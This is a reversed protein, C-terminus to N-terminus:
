RTPMPSDPSYVTSMLEAIVTDSLLLGKPSTLAIRTLDPPLREMMGNEIQRNLQSQLEEARNFQAAESLLSSLELGEALRFGMMMREALQVQPTAHEVDQITPLGDLDPNNTLYQQLHPVNKWRYNAWHGSAAPGIAFWNENRWYALNHQCRFDPKKDGAHNSEQLAFNSIEYANFGQETLIRRTALFMEAEIKEDIAHFEGANKRATMATGPEFTLAYCSLHTPKLSLARDLDRLWDETTQGPIGFILDININTIGANRSIDVARDVNVPDHWRELIKLLTPNFSQGGISIRNVGGRALRSMLEPTVTEPNAEVTFETQSDIPFHRALAPLIRDWYELNLLTPTGGGVFFSKLGQDDSIETTNLSLQRSVPRINQQDLLHSAAQLERLLRDTFQSQRNQRDVISYFDCYHCKHFCFPIHM